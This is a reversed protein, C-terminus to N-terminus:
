GAKFLTILLFSFPSDSAGLQRAMIVRERVRGMSLPLTNVGNGKAQIGSLKLNSDGQAYRLTQPPPRVKGSEEATGISDPRSFFVM